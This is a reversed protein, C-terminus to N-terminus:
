MCASGFSAVEGPDFNAAEHNILMDAETSTRRSMGVRESYSLSAAVSLKHDNDDVDVPTLDTGRRVIVMAMVKNGNPLTIEGRPIIMDKYRRMPDQGKSRFLRAQEDMYQDFDDIAANREALANALASEAADFEAKVAARRDADCAETLRALQQAKENRATRAAEAEVSKKEAFRFAADVAANVQESLEVGDIKALATTDSMLALLKKTPSIGM